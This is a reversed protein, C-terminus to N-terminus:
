AVTGCNSAASSGAGVTNTLNAASGFDTNTGYEATETWSYLIFM